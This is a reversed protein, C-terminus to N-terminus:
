KTAVHTYVLGRDSSRYCATRVIHTRYVYTVEFVWQVLTNSIVSTVRSHSHVVSRKLWGTMPIFSTVALKQRGDFRTKSVIGCIIIRNPCKRNNGFIQRNWSQLGINPRSFVLESCSEELDITGDFDCSNSFYISVYVGTDVWHPMRIDYVRELCIRESCLKEM